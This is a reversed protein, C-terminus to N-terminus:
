GTVVSAMDSVDDKSRTPVAAPSMWVYSMAEWWSKRVSLVWLPRAM